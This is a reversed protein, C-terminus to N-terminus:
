VFIVRTPKIFLNSNFSFKLSFIVDYSVRKLYVDIISNNDMVIPNRQIPYNCGFFSSLKDFVTYNVLIYDSNEKVNHKLFVNTHQFDIEPDFWFNKFDILHYNNIPGPFKGLYKKWYMNENNEYHFNLLCVKNLDFLKENM